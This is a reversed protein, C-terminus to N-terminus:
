SELCHWSEGKVIRAIQTKGIPFFRVIEGYTAGLSRLKRIDGVDKASLKARPNKEGQLKGDWSGLVKSAHQGNESRNCWELNESRNDARDGNIHNCIDRGEPPHGIFAILVLRHVFVHKHQEGKTLIVQRYGGTTVGGRHILGRRQGTEPHSRIEGLSSAQYLGVYGPIDKWTEM